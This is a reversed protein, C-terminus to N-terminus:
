GHVLATLVVLIALASFVALLPEQRPMCCLLVGHGRAATAASPASWAEAAEVPCSAVANINDAACNSCLGGVGALGLMACSILSTAVAGVGAARETQCEGLVEPLQQLVTAAAARGQNSITSRNAAKYCIAAVPASLELVLQKAQMAVAIHAYTITIRIAQPM